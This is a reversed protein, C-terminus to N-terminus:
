DGAGGDKAGDGAAEHLPQSFSSGEGQGLHPFSGRGQRRLGRAERDGEQLLLQECNEATSQSNMPHPSPPLGGKGM